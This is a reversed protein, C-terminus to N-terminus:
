EFVGVADAAELAMRVSEKAEAPTIEPDVAGAVLATFHAIEGSYGDVAALDDPTYADGEAPYVCLSPDNGSGFVLTAQELAIRFGMAFGFSASM